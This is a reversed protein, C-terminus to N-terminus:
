RWQQARAVREGDADLAEGDIRADIAHALTAPLTSSAMRLEGEDAPHQLPSVLEVRWRQGLRCALGASGSELLFSRCYRGDHARFTLGIRVEGQREGSLQHDLALALAGSADHGQEALAASPAAQPPQRQWLWVGVLLAAALSAPVAWRRGPQRRWASPAPASVPAAPDTRFSTQPTTPPRRRAAELLRAPIPEDLVPAFGSRLQANVRQLKRM